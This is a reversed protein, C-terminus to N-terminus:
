SNQRKKLYEFISLFCCSLPCYLFANVHHRHQPNLATPLTTFTYWFVEKRNHNRFLSNRWEHNTTKFSCLGHLRFSKLFIYLVTCTHAAKNESIQKLHFSAAMNLLTGTELTVSHLLLFFNSLSKIKIINCM